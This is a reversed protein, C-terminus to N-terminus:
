AGVKVRSASSILSLRAQRRIIWAGVRKDARSGQLEQETEDGKFQLEMRWGGVMHRCRRDTKRVDYQVEPRTADVTVKPKSLANFQKANFRGPRTRSTSGKPEACLPDKRSGIVVPVRQSQKAAVM